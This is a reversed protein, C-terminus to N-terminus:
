YKIEQQLRRLEDKEKIARKKDVQRKSAALALELKFMNKKEYIKMPILAMGGKSSKGMLMEIQKRHLLLKRDHRPDYDRSDQGHYPFIYANKLIMEGKVIRAFSESLDVRGLRVSKVEPGTLVMGAELTEIIHYSHRAKRNLIAM